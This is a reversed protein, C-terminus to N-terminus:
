FYSILVKGIYFFGALLAVGYVAAVLAVGSGSDGGESEMTEIQTARSRAKMALVTVSVALTLWIISPTLM